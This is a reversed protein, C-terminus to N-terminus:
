FVADIHYNEVSNENEQVKRTTGFLEDYKPLDFLEDYTPLNSNKRISETECFLM